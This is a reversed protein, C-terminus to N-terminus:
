DMVRRRMRIEPSVSDLGIKVSHRRHQGGLVDDFSNGGVTIKDTVPRRRFEASGSAIAPLIAARNRL